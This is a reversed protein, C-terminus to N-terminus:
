DIICSCNALNMNVNTMINYIVLLFKAPPTLKLTGEAGFKPHVQRGGAGGGPDVGNGSM